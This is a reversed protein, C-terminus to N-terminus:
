KKIYSVIMGKGSAQGENVEKTKIMKDRELEDLRRHFTSYSIRGGKEVYKDYIEKVRKDTHEKITNLILKNDSELDTSGKVKFKELKEMASDVHEILIKKSAKLEAADGSEKLMFIGSRLDKIEFTKDSIKKLSEENWVNPVFAYQIRQKLIGMTEDYNYPKFELIDVNLRSRIREDLESIWTKDNTILLIAKRYIDELLTYLLENDNLKDIEDFCFVVNKKNLMNVVVKMLEDTKKNQTWKYGLQECIESIIKFSTDKKWCNIYITEIDDTEKNIENFLHKVSVTKGIGTGGCIFLNRGSRKQFLPKICTAIYQQQNERYKIIPPVYEYDLAMADIFLSENDKLINDFMGM